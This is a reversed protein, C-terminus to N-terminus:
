GRAQPRATRRTDIMVTRHEIEPASLGQMMRIVVGGREMAELSQLPDQAIGYAATTDRWRLGNRNVFIIRSLVRQDDVQAQRLEKPFATSAAM